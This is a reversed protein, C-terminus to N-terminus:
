LLFRCLLSRKFPQLGGTLDNNFVASFRQHITRLTVLQDKSFVAENIKILDLSEYDYSPASNDPPPAPPPVNKLHTRRAASRVHSVEHLSNVSVLHPKFHSFKKAILPRDSVNQYLAMGNLVECVQPKWQNDEYAIPFSPSISIYGSSAATKPIPIQLFDSPFAVANYPLSIANLNFSVSSDPVSNEGLKNGHVFASSPKIQEAPPPFTEKVEHPNSQEVLFRGHIKVTGAKIRTEIDNDAHFTTGGFCQAQLNKMILARVRMQISGLSVNFDVEGLSAMRTKQDALLALQNNPAINLGLALALSLKMYSVTAGSDLTISFTKFKYSVM